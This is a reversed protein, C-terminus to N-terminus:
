KDNFLSSLIKNISRKLDHKINFDWIRIVEWGIKKLEQNVLKDRKKNNKIKNEWYNVNSKPMKFRTPHGHWFDSDIFIAIKKRCFAIDPKGIVNKYYIQFNLKLKKLENILIREPKTGSSRIKQMNKKRQDPTLNDM